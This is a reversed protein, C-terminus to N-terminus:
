KSRIAMIATKLSYTDGTWEEWVIGDTKDEDKGGKRWKGTLQSDFCDHYWWGSGYTQACHEGHSDNDRDYTSFPRMNHSLLSDEATSKSKYGSIFLQYNSKQTDVKFNDYRAFKYVDCKTLPHFPLEHSQLGIFLEMDGKETLSRIDELGLFFESSFDGFGRVYEDWSRTFNIQTADESKVEKRRLIVTWGGGPLSMDCYVKITIGSNMDPRINYLGSTTKGSDYIEKCSRPPLVASFSFFIIFQLDSSKNSHLVYVYCLM